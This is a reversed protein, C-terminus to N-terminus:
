RKFVFYCLAFVIICGAVVYALLRNEGNAFVQLFETHDTDPMGM